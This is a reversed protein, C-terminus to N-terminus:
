IAYNPISNKRDILELTRQTVDALSTNELVSAVANKVEFMVHYLACSSEDPCNVSSASVCELPALPGEVTTIIEALSIREPPRSLTYGGGVGRKSVVM